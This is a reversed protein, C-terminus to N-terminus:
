RWRRLQMIKRLRDTSLKMAADVPAVKLARSRELTLRTNRGIKEEIAAFAAREGGGAYEISACIVGGANAIFDPVSVIGREFMMREATATAPINAGQVVLKCNLMDVNDARLVDPRAAPIFIECPLAILAEPDVARAGKFDSVSKGERKLAVLAEIDLGEGDAVAGRSDSVGVMRVGKRALFRAAHIGVAGFGQVVIRAGSLSLNAFPAAASAAIMVGFGTAGIEDLPIGGIEAPLGVSRGIEDHIWAMATEDTGMDPGPIYDVLQEISKAFVRILREKDTPAMDSDGFIVSKAGGHPLGCAANKLTMARALRVCERLSVDPAMRTGGIAPGAAINDIVVVARLDVSPSWIHVIKAPGFEDRFSFPDVESEAPM